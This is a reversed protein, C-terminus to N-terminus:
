DPCSGRKRSGRASRKMLDAVASQHKRVAAHQQGKIYHRQGTRFGTHGLVGVVMRAKEPSADVIYTACAHRFMHATFRKGTIRGLHKKFRTSIYDRDLPAGRRSLWLANSHRPAPAQLMPRYHSMYRLFRKALAEPLPVDEIRRKKREAPPFRVIVRDDEVVINLGIQMESVAGARLPCLAMFMTLLGDRYLSAQCWTTAQTEAEDMMGTGIAVLERPSLLNGRIDRVSKAARTLRALIQSLQRRDSGPDMARFAMELGSYVGRVTYPALQRSLEYGLDRLDDLVLREGVRQVTGLRGARLLFGLLRGYALEANERSRPAWRAAIGSETFEDGPENAKKWAEYDL